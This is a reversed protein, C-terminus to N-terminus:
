NSLESVMDVGDWVHSFQLSQGLLSWRRIHEGGALSQVELREEDSVSYYSIGQLKPQLLANLDHLSSLHNQVFIYNGCHLEIDQQQIHSVDIVDFDDFSSLAQTQGRMVLYQIYVQRDVQEATTLQTNGWHENVVSWFLQKTRTTVNPLWVVVRPSACAQQSFSQVDTIFGKAAKQIDSKAIEGLLAISYRDPFYLNKCSNKTKLTKFHNVTADGGWVVIGDAHAVLSGSIDDNRPYSVLALRNAAQYHSKACYEIFQEILLSAIPSATNGLRVVVKNGTLIGLTLSYFFLTDINNPAIQFVSGLPEHQNKTYKQAIQTLNASRLWFALSVLVPEEKVKEQHLLFASFDSFFSLSDESMFEACPANDFM